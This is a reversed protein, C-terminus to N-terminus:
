NQWGYKVLDMETLKECISGQPETSGINSIEDTNEYIMSKGPFPTWGDDFKKDQALKKVMDIYHKEFKIDSEQATFPLLASNYGFFAISDYAHIAPIGVSSRHTIYLRYIDRNAAGSMAEAVDNSPCTARMDCTMLSWITTPDTDPYLAIATEMANDEDTLNEFLPKMATKLDAESAFPPSFLWSMVYNEEALSSVIIPLPSSPTFGATKLNRPTVTVVVPDIMVLGVVEADETLSKPFTFYADGNVIEIYERSFKHAPLDLLCQKRDEAAEQTCNVQAVITRQYADGNIHTFRMEPAPSQAIAAHFKNNALPSSVLALIATAGGSEGILTVSGPDGGFAAINDQIWDLAAIMDRIGNNAYVGAEEDWLEEVSSFGIFGLRFNINVTVADVKHTVEADFSYGQMMGYGTALGGGHIWVLVPKSGTLDRSRVSLVLCDEVGVGTDAQVCVVPTEDSAEVGQEPDIEQRVPPRFRLEGIPAEAYRINHFEHIETVDDKLTVTKGLIIGANKTRAQIPNKINDKFVFVLLLALVVFALFLLIASFIGCAKRSCGM